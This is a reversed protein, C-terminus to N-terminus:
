PRRVLQIHLSGFASLCSQPELRLEPDNAANRKSLEISPFPPDAVRLRRRLVRDATSDCHGGRGALSLLYISTREASATSRFSHVIFAEFCPPCRHTTSTAYGPFL